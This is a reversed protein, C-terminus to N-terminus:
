DNQQVSTLRYGAGRVTEICPAGQIAQLKRRINWIRTYLVQNDGVFDEGYVLTALEDITLPHEAHQALALLTDFEGRTLSLQLTDPPEGVWARRQHPDITLRPVHLPTRVSSSAAPQRRLLAQVQARLLDINLPKPLYLDAGRELGGVIDDAQRAVHSCVVRAIQPAREGLQEVLSWTTQPEPDLDLLAVAVDHRRLILWVDEADAATRLTVDLSALYAALSHRLQQDVSYILLTPM